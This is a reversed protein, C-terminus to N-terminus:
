VLKQGKTHHTQGSIEQVRENLWRDVESRYFEPHGGDIKRFPMGERMYRNITATSKDLYAAVQAKTMLPPTHRTMHSVTAKVTDQILQEVENRSLVIMEM